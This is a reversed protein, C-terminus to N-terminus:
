LGSIPLSKPRGILHRCNPHAQTVYLLM